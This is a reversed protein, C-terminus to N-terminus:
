PNRIRKALWIDPKGFGNADPIVGVIKYEMKVYFGYPHRNFNEIHEIREFTRDYLDCGYLSTTGFEDDSGLYITIGGHNAVEAELARILATGVGRSRYERAVMIPHLEWGTTGYQPIAGVFGVLRGGSVAAIAVRDDALCEDAEEPGIDAYTHPFVAAFMAALEHRMCADERPFTVVDIRGNKEM